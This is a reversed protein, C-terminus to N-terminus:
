GRPTPIQRVTTRAVKSLLWKKCLATANILRVFHWTEDNIVAQASQVDVAVSTPTILVGSSDTHAGLEDINRIAGARLSTTADTMGRQWRCVVSSGEDAANAKILIPVAGHDENFIFAAAHGGMQDVLAM